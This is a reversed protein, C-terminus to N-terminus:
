KDSAGKKNDTFDPFATATLNGKPLNEAAAQLEEIYDELYETAEEDNSLDGVQIVVTPYTLGQVQGIHQALADLNPKSLVLLAPSGNVEHVLIFEVGDARGKVARVEVTSGLFSVKDYLPQVFDEGEENLMKPPLPPEVQVPDAEEYIKIHQYEKSTGLDMIGVGTVFNEEGTAIKRAMVYASDLTFELFELRYEQNDKRIEAVIM